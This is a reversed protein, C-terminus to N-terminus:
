VVSITIGGFDLMGKNYSCEFPADFTVVRGMDRERPRWDESPLEVVGLCGSDVPYEDGCDDLYIGDGPTMMVVVKRGRVTYRAGSPWGRANMKDCLKEWGRQDREFAYCPDGVFYTGAPMLLPM